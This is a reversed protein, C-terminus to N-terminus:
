MPYFLQQSSLSTSLTSCPSAHTQFHCKKLPSRGDDPPGSTAPSQTLPGVNLTIGEIEISLLSNLSIQACIDFFHILTNAAPVPTNMCQALTHNLICKYLPNLQNAICYKFLILMCFMLNRIWIMSMNPSRWWFLLLVTLCHRMFPWFLAWAMYQPSNFNAVPDDHSDQSPDRPCPVIHLVDLLINDTHPVHVQVVVFM